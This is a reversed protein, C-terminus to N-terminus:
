YAGGWLAVVVVAAASAALVAWDAAHMRLRETDTSRVPNEIGRCTAARSLEDATTTASMILPVVFCELRESAPIDRLRMADRIHAMEDKLAPFYRMTVTLPILVVQPVRLRELAATLRHVSCEAVLLSGVMLCLFIKRSFTFSITFMTAAVGGVHPFVLNLVAWLVAYGGAFALAMRVHGTLAQLLAVGLVLGLEVTLSKSMFAVVSAALLVGMITRPDLDLVGSRPARGLVIYAGALGAVITVAFMAILMPTTSLADLSALYDAGMGQEAIQSVFSDHFVWLPLPSGCMGLGFVAYAVANGLFSRYRAVARIVEAVVCSAAMMALILPTFMGTAFYILAVILGMIVVAGPKQVKACMLMFPIGAFLGDLAPMFVWLAPHIGGCLMFVFQIVFYIATFIGINILDRGKLVKGESPSPAPSATSAVSSAM